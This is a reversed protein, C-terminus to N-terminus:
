SAPKDGFDWSVYPEILDLPASIETFEEASDDLPMFYFTVYPGSFYFRMGEYELGTGTYDELFLRLGQPDSVFNSFTIENSTNGIDLNVSKLINVTRGITELNGTGKFLVSLYDEDRYTVSYELDVSSWDDSAFSEVYQSLSQNMYDQLLEGKFNKIAPYDIKIDGKSITKSELDYGFNEEMESYRAAMEYAYAERKILSAEDFDLISGNEDTVHLLKGSEFAYTNFPYVAKLLQGNENFYFQSSGSMRGSDDNLAVELKLLTDNKYHRKIERKEWGEAESPLKFSEIRLISLNSDIKDPTSFDVSDISEMEDEHSNEEPPIAEPSCAPMLFIAALLVALLKTKM